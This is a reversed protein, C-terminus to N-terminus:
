LHWGRRWCHWLASLIQIFQRGRHWLGRLGRGLARHKMAVPIETIRFGHHLAGITLAVEVGFGEFFDGVAHLVQTKMARQGSLPSRVQYGTLLKVGLSAVRRAIGFGMQMGSSSQVAGFHAITMDAQDRLIPELLAGALGATPGLDADLLLYVDGAVKSRGYNLAGGKGQNVRSRLVTIQKGLSCGSAIVFTDDHSGDDIVVIEDVSQLGAVATLTQVISEAENFAPILVVVRM